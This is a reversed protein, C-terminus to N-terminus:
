IFVFDLAMAIQWEVLTMQWDQELEQLIHHVEGLFTHGPHLVWINVILTSGETEHSQGGLQNSTTHPGSANHEQPFIQSKQRRHNEGEHLVHVFWVQFPHLTYSPQWLTRHFHHSHLIGLIEQILPQITYPRLGEFEGANNIGRFDDLCLDISYLDTLYAPSIICESM